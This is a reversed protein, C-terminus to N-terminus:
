RTERVNGIIYSICRYNSLRFNVSCDTSRYSTREKCSGKGGRVTFIEGQNGNNSNTLSPGSPNWTFSALFSSCPSSYLVILKKIFSEDPLHRLTSFVLSYRRRDELLSSLPLTGGIGDNYKRRARSAKMTTGKRTM